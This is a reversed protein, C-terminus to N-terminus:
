PSASERRALLSEIPRKTVLSYLALPDWDTGNPWCITGLEPNVLVRASYAPDLLPVFIGQFNLEPALDM